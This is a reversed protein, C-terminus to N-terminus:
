DEFQSPGHTRLSSRSASNAHATCLTSYWGSQQHLAGPAGCEECTASARAKAQDILDTAGIYPIDLYFRLGGFKTKVQRALLPVEGKAAQDVCIAELQLSLEMLLENWGDGCDFRELERYLTPASNFLNIDYASPLREMFAEIHTTRFRGLFMCSHFGLHM